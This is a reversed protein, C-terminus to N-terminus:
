ATIWAAQLAPTTKCDGPATIATTNPQADKHNGHAVEGPADSNVFGEECVAGALCGCTSAEHMERLM